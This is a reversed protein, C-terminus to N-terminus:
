PGATGLSRLARGLLKSPKQQRLGGWRACTPFALFLRRSRFCNLTGKGRGYLSPQPLSGKTLLTGFPTWRVCGRPDGSDPGGPRPRPTLTNTRAQPPGLCVSPELVEALM